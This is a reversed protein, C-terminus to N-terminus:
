TDKFVLHDQHNQLPSDFLFFPNSSTKIHENKKKIKKLEKKRKRLEKNQPILINGGNQRRKNKKLQIM